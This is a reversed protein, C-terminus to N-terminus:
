LLNFTWEPAVIRYGYSAFEKARRSYFEKCARLGHVMIITAKVPTKPEVIFAELTLSDFSSITIYEAEEFKPRHYGTNKTDIFMRPLAYYFGWFGVGLLAIFAFLLLKRKM